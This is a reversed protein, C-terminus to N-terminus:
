TTHLFTDLVMLVVQVLQFTLQCKPRPLVM